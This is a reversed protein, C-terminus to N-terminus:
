DLLSSCPQPATKPLHEKAFSSHGRGSHLKLGWVKLGSGVRKSIRTRITLPQGGCHLREGPGFLWGPSSKLFTQRPGLSGLETPRSSHRLCFNPFPLVACNQKSTQSFCFFNQHVPFHDPFPWFFQRGSIRIQFPGITAQLPHQPAQFLWEQPSPWCFM